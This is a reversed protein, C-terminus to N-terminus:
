KVNFRLKITILNLVAAQVLDPVIRRLNFMAHPSRSERRIQYFNRRNPNVIFLITKRIHGFPKTVREGRVAVTQTRSQSRAVHPIDKM